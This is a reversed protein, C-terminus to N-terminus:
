LRNTTADCGAQIARNIQGADKAYDAETFIGSLRVDGARRSGALGGDSPALHGQGTQQEM